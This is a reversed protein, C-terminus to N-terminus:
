IDALSAYGRQAAVRNFTYFGPIKRFSEFQHEAGACCHMGLGGFTEALDVFEPLCLEEFMVTSFAGCEDNSLWPGM